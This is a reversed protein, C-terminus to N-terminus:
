PRQDTCGWKEEFIEWFQDEKYSYHWWETRIPQFGAKEMQQKLLKRNFQITKSLKPTSSHYARWGFHDFNTGMDLEDGEEDIITLDVAMGRNHMSGEKPDAVYRPDPVEEWLEWQVALPRYCDFLKLRYGKKQLQKNVKKLQRAVNPRLFCRGCEYIVHDVFNDTTAYRMDLVFGDEETIEM